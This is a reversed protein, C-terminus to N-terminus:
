LGRRKLPFPIIQASQRPPAQERELIERTRRDSRAQMELWAILRDFDAEDPEM